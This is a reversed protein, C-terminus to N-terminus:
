AAWGGTSPSAASPMSDHSPRPSTMSRATAWSATAGSSVTLDRIASALRFELAQVSSNLAEEPNVGIQSQLLDVPIENAKYSAIAGPFIVQQERRGQQSNVQLETPQLGKEALLQYTDNREQENESRSPNIFEYQINRNYARFEDLMERTANRLRKFGAPFEGELYVRFYVIDDVEELLERTAPSLSYRKESTLDFRTFIMSGALNALVIIAIGLVLQLTASRKLNRRRNKVNVAGM